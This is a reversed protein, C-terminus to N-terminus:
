KRPPGSPGQTSPAAAQMRYRQLLAKFEANEPRLEILKKAGAIAKPWDEYKEHFYTLTALFDPSNPALQHAHTFADRAKDIEDHMYLFLAYDHQVAANNPALLADRELLGLEEFRLRKVEQTLKDLEELLLTAQEQQRSRVANQIAGKRADARRQYIVALNRRPGTIGPEVHIATKYANEAAVPDGVSEYFSGLVAHARGSDNSMLLGEKWKEVATSRADRLEAPIQPRPVPALIRGAQARVGQVRDLLLPSILSVLQEVPLRGLNAAIELNAASTTRVQPDTDTLGRQSAELSTQSQYQGLQLLASARVIPAILRSKAVRALEEAADAEGDWADSLAHAFHKPEKKREGYWTLVADQAWQDIRKLESGIQQDGEDRALLWDAYQTLSKRKEEPLKEPELHCRTCANPTGLAISLDPRPVRLSHDRRPDVAMYTTEPMHCEVCQAGTSGPKHHHHSPSDYKGASHQHCSTCVQNGDHKLRATHPDHCDSCRVGEKYMKSQLFSGYVYVEDRIQGDAHYTQQQLLENEFFDYYNNGPEFRHAVHRRRSHCPACTEIEVHSDKSKLNPLGYGLRRDWFLRRNEALEVHVSGPGHCAECSVDMENFSTRYLRTAVNFNKELNTSHCDACMRNWCQAVGTWHLPDDPALKEDVDPPQLHFWRKASTDWAIPLVQIRGTENEKLDAGREFEVMYQQLPDVGFVYSVTFDEMKGDHGETHVVYKDGDRFMRSTVGFHTIEQDAFDGLVTQDNARDMALDHHSGTWSHLQKEHCQSCQDRGVYRAHAEEPLCVWWDAFLLGGILLGISAGGILLKQRRALKFHQKDDNTSKRVNTKM